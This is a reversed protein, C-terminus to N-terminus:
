NPLTVLDLTRKRDCGWKMEHMTYLLNLRNAKNRHVKVDKRCMNLHDALDGVMARLEIHKRCCMVVRVFDKDGQEHKPITMFKHLNADPVGRWPECGEKFGGARSEKETLPIM